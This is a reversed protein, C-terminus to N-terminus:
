FFPQYDSRDSKVLKMYVLVAEQNDFSTEIADTLFEMLPRYDGYIQTSLPNELIKFPSNRLTKIFEIILQEYGDQLPSMTLEISVKM